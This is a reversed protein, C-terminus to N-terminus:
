LERYQFGDPLKLVELNPCHVDLDDLNWGYEREVDEYERELDQVHLLLFRCSSPSYFSESLM